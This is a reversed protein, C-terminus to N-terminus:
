FGGVEQKYRMKKFSTKRNTIKTIMMDEDKYLHYRVVRTADLGLVFLVLKWSTLHASRNSEHRLHVEGKEAVVVDAAAIQNTVM